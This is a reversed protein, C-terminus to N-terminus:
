YRCGKALSVKDGGFEWSGAVAKPMRGGVAKSLTM